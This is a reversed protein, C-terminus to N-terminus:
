RKVVSFRQFMSVGRALFYMNLLLYLQTILELSRSTRTKRLALLILPIQWALLLIVTMRSVLNSGSLFVMAAGSTVLLAALLYAIPLAISPLEQWSFGHHLLGHLNSTGRWLEKRFFHRISSAEGHHVAVIRADTVLRGINRLRLSLDYDECTVLNDDFGRVAAFAERRVFMNMSELWDTDAGNLNKFRIPFWARQVWTANEPIIPASGFCVINKDPLYRAAAVLWDPTVSCDADLFALIEGHAQSAGFNRLGSITLEPKVYVTAGKQRSIEVTKDTSGNDVIIIEYAGKDWQVLAISDLCCGISAEENKAPIIISYQISM